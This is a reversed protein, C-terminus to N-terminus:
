SASGSAMLPDERVADVLFDLVTRVRLPLNRRSPYVVHIPLRSPPFDPMLNVLRGVEIDPCALIHSLVAVGGGALVARHVAVSNNAIMRPVIRVAVEDAGNSFSWSRGDGSRSYCICDHVAIDDPTEPVPRGQLYCPAAVLFATTWGIRRCMLSNDAVSGLRVELDIGEGVLDSPEERFILEVCLESHNRLLRTLRDSMYLGLPAPLSLRVKGSAKAGEGCTAEGLAEVAEIVRRAMPITQEGEVTLALASTTRHLLRTNLHAELASVQRSVAPQTLDLDVAAASFSGTEAVRLFTRLASVIDMGVGMSKSM